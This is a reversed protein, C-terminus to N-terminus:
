QLLLQYFFFLYSIYNYKYNKTAITVEKERVEDYIYALTFFYILEQEFWWVHTFVNNKVIIKLFYYKEYNFKLYTLNESMKIWENM